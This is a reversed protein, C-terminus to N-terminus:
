AGTEDGPDRDRIVSDVEVFVLWGPLGGAFPTDNGAPLREIRLQHPLQRSVQNESVFVPPMWKGWEAAAHMIISIQGPLDGHGGRAIREDGV